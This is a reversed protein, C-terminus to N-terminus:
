TRDNRAPAVDRPTLPSRALARRYGRFWKPAAIRQRRALLDVASWDAFQPVALRAVTALTAEYDLSSALVEASSKWVESM